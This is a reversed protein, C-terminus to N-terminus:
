RAPNQLERRPLARLARRAAIAAAAVGVAEDLPTQWTAAWTHTLTGSSFHGVV